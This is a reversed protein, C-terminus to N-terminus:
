GEVGESWFARFGSVWHGLGPWCLVGFGLGQARFGLRIGEVRLGISQVKLGM